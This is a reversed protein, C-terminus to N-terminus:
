PLEYWGAVRVNDFYIFQDGGAPTDLAMWIRVGEDPLLPPEGPAVWSLETLGSNVVNIELEALTVWGTGTEFRELRCRVPPSVLQYSTFYARFHALYLPTSNPVFLETTLEIHTKDGIGVGGGSVQYGGCFPYQPHDPGTWGIWGDPGTDFTYDLQWDYLTGECGLCYDASYGATSGVNGNWIQNVQGQNYLVSFITKGLASTSSSNIVGQVASYAAISSNATYIACVVDEKIAVWDDEIDQTFLGAVVAVLAGILSFLLAYPLTVLYLGAIFGILGASLGGGIEAHNFVDTLFSLGNDHALQARKCLEELGIGDPAPAPDPPPITPPQDELYCCADANSMIITTQNLIVTSIQNVITGIIEDCPTMLGIETNDVIDEIETRNAEYDFNDVRYTSPWDALELLANLLHKGAIPVCVLCFAAPDDGAALIRQKAAQWDYRFSM